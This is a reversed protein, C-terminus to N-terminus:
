MSKESVYQTLPMLHIIPNNRNYGLKECVKMFSEDPFLTCIEKIETREFITDKNSSGGHQSTVVTGRATFQDHYRFTSTPFSQMDQHFNFLTGYPCYSAHNAPGAFLWLGEAAHMEFLVGNGSKQLFCGSDVLHIRRTQIDIDIDSRMTITSPHASRRQNTPDETDIFCRVQLGLADTVRAAVRNHNRLTASRLWQLEESELLQECTTYTNCDQWLRFFEEDLFPLSGSCLIFLKHELYDKTHPRVYTHFLGVKSPLQDDWVQRDCSNKAFILEDQKLNEDENDGPMCHFASVNTTNSQLEKMLVDLKNKYEDMNQLIHLVNGNFNSSTESLIEYAVICDFLNTPIPLVNAMDCGAAEFHFGSLELRENIHVNPLLEIKTHQSLHLAAECAGREQDTLPFITHQTCYRSDMGLAARAKILV